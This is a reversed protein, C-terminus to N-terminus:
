WMCMCVCVCASPEVESGEVSDGLLAGQSLTGAEILGDKEGKGQRGPQEAVVLHPLLDFALMEPSADSRHM